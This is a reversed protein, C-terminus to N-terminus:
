ANITVNTGNVTYAVSHMCRGSGSPCEAHFLLRGGGPVSTAGGPTKLGLRDGTVLAVTSWGMRSPAVVSQLRNM